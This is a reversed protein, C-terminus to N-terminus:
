YIWRLSRFIPTTSNLKTRSKSKRILTWILDSFCGTWSCNCDLQLLSWYVDASYHVPECSSYLDTSAECLPQITVSSHQLVFLDVTCTLAWLMVYTSWGNVSKTNIFIITMHIVVSTRGQWINGAHTIYETHKHYLVLQHLKFQSSKFM